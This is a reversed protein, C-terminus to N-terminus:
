NKLMLESIKEEFSKEKAKLNGRNKRVIRELDIQLGSNKIRPVGQTHVIRAYIDCNKLQPEFYQITKKLQEVAHKYDSGKLEVFIAKVMETDYVILLNDCAKFGIENKVIGGDLNYKRIEKRNDTNILTYKKSREECKVKERKDTFEVCEKCEDQKGNICERLKNCIM